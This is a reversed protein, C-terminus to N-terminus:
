ADTKRKKKAGTKRAATAAFAEEPPEDMKAARKRGPQVYQEELRDFFAAARTAQRQQIMRMLENDGAAGDNKKKTKTQKGGKGNKASQKEEVEAALAEAEKAEKQARKLRRERKKAPEEVYSKHKEARGAAIARDIIGRFREDDDMVNCLMVSEYVKDLDGRYTEYAALLDREEEESGQYEQKLKEIANTDIASSFQERYFDAWNFDDDIDVAESTSGTLDYRERRKADSLIAYAFAIQQFKKNAEDREEVPVKDPHHKLAQKRYASKIQDATADNSVGLIEYLDSEPIPPEPSESARRSEPSESERLSDPSESRPPAARSKSKRAM